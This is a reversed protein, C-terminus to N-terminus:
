SAGGIPIEEWEGTTHSKIMMFSPAWGLSHNITHKAGTGTYLHTRRYTEWDMQPTIIKGSPVILRPASIKMLSSASVIAPASAAALISALFGRRTTM